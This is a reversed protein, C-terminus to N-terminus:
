GGTPRPERNALIPEPSAGMSASPANQMAVAEGGREKKRASRRQSTGEGKPWPQKAEEADEEAEM